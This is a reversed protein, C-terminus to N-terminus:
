GQPLFCAQTTYAVPAADGAGDSQPTFYITGEHTSIVSTNAVSITVTKQPKLEGQNTSLQVGSGTADATWKVTTPGINTLYLNQTKTTKKCGLTLSDPTVSLWNTPPTATPSPSPTPTMTATPSPRSAGGLNPNGNGGLAALSNGLASAVVVGMIVLVVLALGVAALLPAPIGPKRRPAGGA